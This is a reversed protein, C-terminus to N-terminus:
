PSFSLILMEPTPIRVYQAGGVSSAVHLAISLLTLSSYWRSDLNSCVSLKRVSSTTEQLLARPSLSHSTVVTIRHLSLPHAVNERTDSLARFCVNLVETAWFDPNNSPMGMENIKFWGNDYGTATTADPVPAM